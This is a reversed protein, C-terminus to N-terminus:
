GVKWEPKDTWNCMPCYRYSSACINDAITQETWAGCKPCQHKQIQPTKPVVYKDPETLKKMNNKIWGFIFYVCM